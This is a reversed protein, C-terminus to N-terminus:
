AVGFISGVNAIAVEGLAAILAVGADMGWRCGGILEVWESVFNRRNRLDIYVVVAEFGHGLWAIRIGQGIAVGM